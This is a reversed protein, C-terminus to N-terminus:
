RRMRPFRGPFRRKERFPPFIQDFPLPLMFMRVKNELEDQRIQRVRRNVLEPYNPSVTKM